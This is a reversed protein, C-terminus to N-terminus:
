RPSFRQRARELAARMELEFRENSFKMAHARLKAPEFSSVGRELEQMGSVLAEVTQEQFLIGTEGDVVTDLAGGRAYAIVPRGAAMAEVPTIGFDELGPFLLARSSAYYRAIAEDSQWGLFTITPGAREKLRDFEPGRGIVVLPRALRTCADVALDVRKYRVLHSVVLYPADPKPDSATFREVAVPPHIVEADRDYYRRIRGAVEVSNAIFHDVRKATTRDWERLRSLVARAAARVPWPLPALYSEEMEWAYRMPTHCYCVHLAGPKVSVGKAPGSESSIVLDYESLDLRRLAWPMLPLYAKYLRRAFPLKGIFTTRVRHKRIEASVGDADYLHTFIDADPYLRCVAEVVREGGRMHFLWYHVIAVKV